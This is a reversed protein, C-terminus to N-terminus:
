DSIEIVEQVIGQVVDGEEPIIPKHSSNTSKPLLIRRGDKKDYYKITVNEGGLLAVVRDGTEGKESYRCLVLDRDNIGAKNMSDGSARVIFYKTGPRIKNKDVLIMEEINAEGLLPEGCPASGVLPIEVMEVSYPSLVPESTTSPKLFSQKFYRETEPDCFYVYCGKQGRTMLTRYTNKIILDLKRRIVKEDQEKALKKWGHISKDTSARAEPVTVVVGERVILDPGVIVGVYDVELGQSTHICGVETVSDPQIIWAQGDKDLNWTARYDGILIDKLIPNKKSVWKWCYGALMRAKNKEKNKEIIAKHLSGPDNFIQFDYSIGELTENATDHIQLMQDLWAIYGDSGNCRFQSELEMEVVEARLEAAFKKIESKEGIDKLTVRQDEDIFFVSFKSAAIIEKVQNDGLHSFM